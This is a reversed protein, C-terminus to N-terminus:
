REARYHMMIPAHDFDAKLISHRSRTAGSNGRQIYGDLRKCEIVAHPLVSGVHYMIYDIQTPFGRPSLDTFECRGGSGSRSPQPHIRINYNRLMRKYADFHDLFTRRVAGFARKPGGRPPRNYHDFYREVNCLDVNLDAGLFVPYEKHLQRKLKSTDHFFRLDDELEARSKGSSSIIKGHFSLFGFTERSRIRELVLVPSYRVKPIRLRSMNAVRGFKAGAMADYLANYISDERRGRRTRPLMRFVATDYVVAVGHDHYEVRTNTTLDTTYQLGIATRAYVYQFTRDGVAFPTSLFVYTPGEHDYAPLFWIYVGRAATSWLVRSEDAHLAREHQPSLSINQELSVEQLTYVDALSRGAVTQANLYNRVTRRFFPKHADPHVIKNQRDQMRGVNHQILTFEPTNLGRKPKANRRRSRRIPTVRARKKYSRNHRTYRRTQHTQNRRVYKRTKKEINAYKPRSHRSRATKRM